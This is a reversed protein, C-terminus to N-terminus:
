YGLYYLIVIVKFIIKVKILEGGSLITHQRYFRSTVYGNPDILNIVRNAYEQTAATFIIIEYYSSMIKLFDFCGPRVIFYGGSPSYAFHILTEDLDLILTYSKDSLKQYNSSISLNKSPALFDYPSNITKVSLSTYYTESLLLSLEEITIIFVKINLQVISSYFSIYYNESFLEDLFTRLSYLIKNEYLRIHYDLSIENLLKQFYKKKLNQLKGILYFIENNNVNESAGGNQNYFRSIFFYDIIDYLYSNFSKLVIKIKKQLMNNLLFELIGFKILLVLIMYMKILKIIVKNIGLRNSKLFFDFDSTLFKLSINVLENIKVEINTDIADELYLILLSFKLFNIFQNEKSIDLIDIKEYEQKIEKKYFKTTITGFSQEKNANESLSKQHFHKIGKKIQPYINDTIINEPSPPLNKSNEEKILLPIYSNDNKNEKILSNKLTAENITKNLKYKMNATSSSLNFKKSLNIIKENSKIQTLIVSSSENKIENTTKNNINYADKVPLNNVNVKSKYNKIGIKSNTRKIYIMNQTKNKGEIDLNSKGNINKFKFEGINKKDNILINISNNIQQKLSINQINQNIKNASFDKKLKIQTKIFLEQKKKINSLNKIPPSFSINKSTDNVFSNKNVIIINGKM